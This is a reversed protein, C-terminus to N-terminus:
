SNPSIWKIKSYLDKLKKVLNSKDIKYGFLKKIDFQIILKNM